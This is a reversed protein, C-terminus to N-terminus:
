MTSAPGDDTHRRIETDLLWAVVSGKGYYSVSTNPSNEDPRYFKIWADHSATTLPQVQTGAQGSSASPARCAASTSRPTSSGLGVLLLDDYYSTVGEAIWLSPTYVEHEYDFPGLAVPRMRKVNWTHFFEHSVLGLWREYDDDDETRDRSPLMLTSDLHELGGGAESIVNLYVYRAYPVEGWFKVQEETIREVGELSREQDWM